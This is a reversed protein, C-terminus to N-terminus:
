SASTPIPERAAPRVARLRYRREELLPRLLLPNAELLDLDSDGFGTHLQLPLAQRAAADLALLLLYDTLPKAALRIRGDRARAEARLPRVRPAADARRPTGVALGTRYAIISKLGVYGAARAGEM